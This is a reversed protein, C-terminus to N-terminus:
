LYIEEKSLKTCTMSLYLPEEYAERIEEMITDKHQELAARCAELTDFTANSTYSASGQSTVAYVVVLIKFM